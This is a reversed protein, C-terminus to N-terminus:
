TSTWTVDVEGDGQANNQHQQNEELVDHQDIDLLLWPFEVGLFLLAAKLAKEAAQQALSPACPRSSL